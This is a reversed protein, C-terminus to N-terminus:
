EAVVVWVGGVWGSVWVTTVDGDLPNGKRTFFFGWVSAKTLEFHHKGM